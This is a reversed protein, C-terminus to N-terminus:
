LFFRRQSLSWRQVLIRLLSALFPTTPADPPLTNQATLSEVFPGLPGVHGCEFGGSIPVDTSDSSSSVERRGATHSQSLSEAERLELTKLQLAPSVATEGGGPVMHANFSNIYPFAIQLTM